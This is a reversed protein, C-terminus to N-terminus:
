VANKTEQAKKVANIWAAQDAEDWNSDPHLNQFMAKAMVTLNGSKAVEEASTGADHHGPGAPAVDPAGAAGGADPNGHGAGADSGGGSNGKEPPLVDAVIVKKGKDDTKIERVQFRSGRPLLFESEGMSSGAKDMDLMNTGAPAHLEMLAADGMFTKEIGGDAVSKDTTTSVFAMDALEDGPQLNDFMSAPAGRYLVAPKTSPSKAILSDLNKVHEHIVDDSYKENTSSQGTRLYNNIPGYANLTYKKASAAEAESVNAPHATAPSGAPADAAKPPNTPADSPTVTKTSQNSGFQPVTTKSSDPATGEGIDIGGEPASTKANKAQQAKAIDGGLKHVANGQAAKQEEALKIKQEALAVDKTTVTPLAGSEPTLPIATSYDPSEVWIEDPHEKDWDAVVRFNEDKGEGSISGRVWDGEKLSKLKQVRFDKLDPPSWEEPAAPVDPKVTSKLTGDPTPVVSKPLPNTVQSPDIKKVGQNNKRNAWTEAWREDKSKVRESDQGYTNGIWGKRKKSLLKSGQLKKLRDGAKMYKEGDKEWTENPGALNNFLQRGMEERDAILGNSTSQPTPGERDATTTGGRKPKPADPGSEIEVGLLDSLRDLGVEKIAPDDSKAAQLADSIGKKQEGAHELLQEEPVAPKNEDPADAQPADAKGATPADPAFKWTGKQEQKTYSDPLKPLGLKQSTDNLLKKTTDDLQSNIKQAEDPSSPIVAKVVEIDKGALNVEPSGDHPEIKYMGTNADFSKVRGTVYPAGNPLDKKSGAGRPVGGIHDSGFRWRVSSGIEIWRGKADRPQAKAKASLFSTSLHPRWAAVLNQQGRIRAVALERERELRHRNVREIAASALLRIPEQATQELHAIRGMLEVPAKVVVPQVPGEIIGDPFIQDEDDLVEIYCGEFAPKAVITAAVLRSRDVSIKDDTIRGKKEDNKELIQASFSSYDGSIGRLMGARVMREAERGWPGSDFVGRANGLGDPLREIYDIRGVVVANKHGDGLQWQWLLPLPLERHDITGPLFTRRDGSETGEPSILNIRFTAGARGPDDRLSTPVPIATGDALLVVRDRRAFNRLFTADDV